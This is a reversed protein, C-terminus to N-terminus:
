SSRTAAVMGRVLQGLTSFYSRAIDASVFALYLDNSMFLSNSACYLPKEVGRYKSKHFSLGKFNYIDNGFRASLKFMWRASFDDNYKGLELKVFPALLLNLVEKGERRFTDIAEMHVATALRGYRQEDCRVINASYGYVKGDRYMPDYFAFGAAKGERDYAVFKRVDPEHDFIPRRAYLWIERDSIKKSGIWRASVGALNAQKLSAGDEERITLGERKAENRARKILDLEKWNGQTNYSQIPLEPEYGLCNVKFGLGRLAEACDESIVGFSARPNDELFKQVLRLRDRPACVPDALTIRRPKPSFVPHRVTTFAIYGTEDIFYEMGAQLTAYALSTGGHQKLFPSLIEWKEGRGFSKAAEGQIIRVPSAAVVTPSIETVAGRSGAAAHSVSRSKGNSSNSGISVNCLNELAWDATLAFVKHRNRDLHGVHGNGPIVALQKKCTLAECLLRGTEPPDLKDDEGWLILTPAAIGAARALTDVFFAQEAGPLPFAMFAELSRPDSLLRRNIEPDSALKPGVSIKALPVRFDRKTLWRKLKGIQTLGKLLWGEIRPLCDRVTADLGILVKLRPEVLGAELIATGGSSLGFAGIRQSDVEPRTTLFDVAARIDAVWQLMNVHFREGGSQGHGHMDMALTALGRDILRECMESYNEKFEGAGHCVILAPVARDVPPLFLTGAVEDGLSRFRVSERCLNM